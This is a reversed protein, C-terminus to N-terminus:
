SQEPDAPKSGGFRLFPILMPTSARYRRYDDGLAALLDREEFQIGVLIYGSAVMAFLLHGQTMTPISWLAIVFGLMLPNRVMSYLWPQAFPPHTYEIGKLHLYVQRLGFLDFHDILFTSYLVLLWGLAFLGWVAARVGQNEVGWVVEPMARWQWFLVVFCICTALVFTAREIPRPIIKTIRAKFAPRAMITHQIAFIGLLGVNVLIAGMGSGTPGDDITRPVWLGGVFLATYTFTGLFLVYIISGYLFCLTRSM